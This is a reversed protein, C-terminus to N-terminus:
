VQGVIGVGAILGNMRNITRLFTSKGCGSPGILATIEREPLDLCIDKLAHNEGYYLNLNKAQIITNSM